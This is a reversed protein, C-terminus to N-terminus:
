TRQWIQNYCNQFGTTSAGIIKSHLKHKMTLGATELLQKCQGAQEHFDDNIEILAEKVEALVKTGGALILHEIGDVDVKIYDPQPINLSERAFDMPVGLTQFEFARQMPKGDWGFDAGFTSLAGGWETTTLSLQNSCLHSSLAVPVICVKRVLDNARINRALLELNFVSPEFAWVQCNRHKAAYVSYLGVNAGIDWFVSDDPMADIWELTEPEKTSFTQARWDCLPNPTSFRLVHGQHKVERTKGMAGSLFQRVAFSGLRTDIFLEILTKMGGKVLSKM